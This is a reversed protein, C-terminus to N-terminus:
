ATAPPTSGLAKSEEATRTYGRIWVAFARTPLRYEGKVGPKPIIIRRKTLASIANSLITEKLGTAKRIDEKKVWGDQRAAMVRLVHRYKESKIQEFFQEDFYKAGLQQFAGHEELAGQTTDEADINNDTDKEFACYAFQQIFHPYGESLTAIWTIAEPTILVDYGNKQKAEDMGLEIVMKQESQPLTNLSLITFLRPSSEHSKRLNPIIQPLGALGLSVRNAGRKTLRETLLKTIAGLKATTPPKDAEDMLILIGDFLNKGDTSVLADTLKDLAEQALPESEDARYKIGKVELRKLFDWTTQGIQLLQNNVAIESRLTTAIKRLLDVQTDSPDLELQLTLFNFKQGSALIDGRAVYQLYLLLSSKGIGREGQIIFHHPNGNKTQFLFQKLKALEEARGAFMGPNVISGPKFPNYRHAM